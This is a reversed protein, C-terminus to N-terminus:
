PSVGAVRGSEISPVLNVDILKTFMESQAVITVCPVTTLPIATLNTPVM